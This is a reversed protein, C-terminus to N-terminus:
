KKCYFHIISIWMSNNNSVPYINFHKAGPASNDISIDEDIMGTDVIAALLEYLAQKVNMHKHSFLGRLYIHMM